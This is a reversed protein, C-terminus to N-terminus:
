QLLLLFHCCLVAQYRFWTWSYAQHDLEEFPFGCTKQAVGVTAFFPLQYQYRVLYVSLSWDHLCSGCDLYIWIDCRHKRWREGWGGLLPEFTGGFKPIHWPESGTCEVSSALVRSLAQSRQTNGEETPTEFHLLQSSNGRIEPMKVANFAIIVMHNQSIKPNEKRSFVCKFITRHGVVLCPTPECVRPRYGESRNKPHKPYGNGLAWNTM